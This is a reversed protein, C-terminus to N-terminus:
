IFVTQQQANYKTQKSKSWVLLFWESEKTAKQLKHKKKVGEKCFQQTWLICVHGMKQKNKNKNKSPITNSIHTNICWALNEHWALLTHQIGCLVLWGYLNWHFIISYKSAGDDACWLWLEYLLFEPLPCVPSFSLKKGTQIGRVEKCYFWFNVPLTEWHSFIPRLKEIINVHLITRHYQCLKLHSKTYNM